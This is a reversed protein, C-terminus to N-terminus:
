ETASTVAVILSPLDSLNFLRFLSTCLHSVRLGLPRSGVGRSRRSIHRICRVERQGFGSRIMDGLDVFSNAVRDAFGAYWAGFYENCGFKPGVKCVRRVDGLAEVEYEFIHAEVIDVQVQRMPGHGRDCPRIDYVRASTRVGRGLILGDDCILLRPLVFQIQFM